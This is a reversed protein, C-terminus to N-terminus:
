LVLFRSSCTSWTGLAWSARVRVTINDDAATAALAAAMDAMFVADRQLQPYSVMSGLARAAAAKVPPAPDHVLGLLLAQYHRQKWAQM